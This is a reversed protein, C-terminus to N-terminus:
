PNIWLLMPATDMYKGLDDITLKGDALVYLKIAASGKKGMKSDEASIAFSVSDSKLALSYRDEFFATLENVLTFETDPTVGLGKVSFKGNRNAKLLIDFKGTADFSVAIGDAKEKVRIFEAVPKGCIGDIKEDTASLDVIEAGGLLATELKNLYKPFMRWRVGGERCEDAIRAISEEGESVIKAFVENKELYFVGIHKFKDYNQDITRKISIINRETRQAM